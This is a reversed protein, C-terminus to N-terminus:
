DFKGMGGMFALARHINQVIRDRDRDSVPTADFPPQWNASRWTADFGFGFSASGLGAFLSEGELRMRRPGEHYEWAFRDVRQLAFGEDSEVGQKNLWTFTM